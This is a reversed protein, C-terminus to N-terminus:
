YALELRMLKAEHLTYGWYSEKMLNSSLGHIHNLSLTMIMFHNCIKFCLFSFEKFDINEKCKRSEKQKRLANYKLIYLSKQKIFHFRLIIICIWLTDIYVPLM